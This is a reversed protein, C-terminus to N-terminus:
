ALDDDDNPFRVQRRINGYVQSTLLELLEKWAADEGERVGTLLAPTIEVQDDTM